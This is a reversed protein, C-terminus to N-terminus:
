TRKIVKYEEIAEEVADCIVFHADQCLKKLLRTAGFGYIEIFSLLAKKLGSKEDAAIDALQGAVDCIDSVCTLILEVAEAAGLRNCCGIKSRIGGNEIHNNEFYKQYYSYLEDFNFKGDRLYSLLLRHTCEAVDSDSEVHHAELHGAINARVEASAPLSNAIIFADETDAGRSFEVMRLYDLIVRYEATGSLAPNTNVYSSLTEIGERGLQIKFVDLTTNLLAPYIINERFAALSVPSLSTTAARDVSLIHYMTSPAIRVPIGSFRSLLEVYSNETIGPVTMAVRLLKSARKDAPMNALISVLMDVGAGKGIINAMAVDEAFGFNDVLIATLRPDSAKISNDISQGLGIALVKSLDTDLAIRRNILDVLMVSLRDCEPIMELCTTCLKIKEASTFGRYHRDIFSVIRDQIEPTRISLLLKDIIVARTETPEVDFYVDLHRLIRQQLFGGYFVSCLNKNIIAKVKPIEGAYNRSIFAFIRERMVDVHILGLLVDLAAAKASACETPYLRSLRTFVGDPITVQNKLYRGFPRYAQVRHHEVLGERYSAYIDLFDSLSSDNIIVSKEVYFGSCQWFMFIIDTFKKVDLKLDLYKEEIGAIFTHFEDRIKKYGFLSYLFSAHSIYQQYQSSQGVVEGTIFDYFVGKDPAPASCNKGICRLKFGKYSDPNSIYSVFSLRQRLSYPLISMIANIFELARESTEADEYPLRVFVDEGEGLIASILSFVLSKIMEPKYKSIVAKGDSLTRPVYGVEDLMPNPAANRATLDFASIDKIFMDSNFSDVENSCFINKIEEGNLVLSHALYASREGTFDKPLYTIVTQVPRGSPLMAQSYVRPIEGRRLRVPNHIDLKDQYMVSLEGLIFERDLGESHAFTDFGDRKNYLSVRAPVRSYFHQHAM